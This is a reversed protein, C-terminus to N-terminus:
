LDKVLRVSRANRRDHGIMSAADSYFLLGYAGGSGDETASWYGGNSQVNYVGSGTRGGAAPLFVAGAVEMKSWEAATFTQNAAYYDVGESDHLSSRFTVGDPCSWGDPLLIL